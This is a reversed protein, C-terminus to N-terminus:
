LETDSISNPQRKFFLSLFAKQPSYSGSINKFLITAAAMLLTMTLLVFEGKVNRLWYIEFLIIAHFSCIMKTAFSHTAGSNTLLHHIHTKDAVFPSKGNWIRLLFVRITDFVPIFVIGLAFVPAHNIVPNEVETNVQILRTCLIAIIFGMLLSGTDGMFIKAPNINFFLFALVAGALAFAIFSSQPDNSLYLFIGLIMLSMFGLGAALGDIGDILNFANTIGVIVIITFAYQDPVPLQNIGFLGEFSTIRIGSVAIMAALAFQIVFKYRASIDKLDDIVGLAGLIAISFFISIWKMDTTFPFWLLLATALGIIITIGGMTPIPSSHLKRDGPMDFAGIKKLLFIAPTIITLTVTFATLFGLLAFKYDLLHLDIQLLPFFTKM